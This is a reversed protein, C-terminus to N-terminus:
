FGCLAWVTNTLAVMLDPAFYAMFTLSLVLGCFLLVAFRQWLPKRVSTSFLTRM